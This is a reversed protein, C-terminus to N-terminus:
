KSMELYRQHINNVQEILTALNGENDIIDDAHKLRENRSLQAKIIAQVQEPDNNDRECTRTIQTEESVDVILTRNVLKYQGSEILLPSALIVYPSKANQLGNIIENRILPHTLAELWKRHDENKFIIERLAARDLEGSALIVHEGFYEQIRLLAPKGKEVVTRAAIDADIVDVGLTKFHDTVATKGSGIGGSVGVVFM